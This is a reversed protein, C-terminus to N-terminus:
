AYKVQIPASIGFATQQLFRVGEDEWQQRRFICLHIECLDMLSEALFQKAANLPSGDADRQQGPLGPEALRM